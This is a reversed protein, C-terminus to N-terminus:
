EQDEDVEETEKRRQQEKLVAQVRWAETKDDMLTHLRYLETDTLEAIKRTFTPKPTKLLGALEADPRATVAESALPGTYVTLLGEKILAANKQEFYAVERPSYLAIVDHVTSWTFKGTQPDLAEPDSCLLFDMEIFADERFPDLRKGAVISPVAKRYMKVIRDELGFFQHNVSRM